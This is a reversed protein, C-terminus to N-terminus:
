HIGSNPRQHNGMINVSGIKLHLFVHSRSLDSSIQVSCHNKNCSAKYQCLGRTFLCDFSSYQHNGHWRMSLDSVHVHAFSECEGEVGVFPSGGSGRRHCFLLLPHPQPFLPPAPETGESTDCFCIRWKPKKIPTLPFQSPKLRHFLLSVWLKGLVGNGVVACLKRRSQLIPYSTFLCCATTRFFIGTLGTFYICKLFDCTFLGSECWCCFCM